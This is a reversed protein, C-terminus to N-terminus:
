LVNRDYFQINDVILDNNKEISLRENKNINNSGKGEISLCSNDIYKVYKDVILFLYHALLFGTILDISYHGRMFLMNVFQVATVFLPILAIKNYGQYSIELAVITSTGVHGSFFFDNTKMYSIMLSPFGPYEWLYGEPLSMQFLMQVSARLGLFLVFTIIPRYTKSKWIWYTGFAITMLDMLLSSVILFVKKTKVAGRLYINVPETWDFLKDKYCEVEYSEFFFGFIANTCIVTVGALIIGAKILFPRWKSLKAKRNNSVATGDNIQNYM